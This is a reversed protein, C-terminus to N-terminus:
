RYAQGQYRDNGDIKRNPDAIGPDRQFRRQPNLPQCLDGLFKVLGEGIYGPPGRYQLDISLLLVWSQWIQNSLDAISIFMDEFSLYLNVM